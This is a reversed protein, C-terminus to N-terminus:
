GYTIVKKKLETPVYPNKFYVAFDWKSTSYCMKMPDMQKTEGKEGKQYEKKIKLTKFGM